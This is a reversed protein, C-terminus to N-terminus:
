SQCQDLPIPQSRLPTEDNDSSPKATYGLEGDGGRVHELSKPSLTTIHSAISQPRRPKKM